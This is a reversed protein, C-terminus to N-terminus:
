RSAPATAAAARRRVIRGGWRVSAGTSDTAAADRPTIPTFAGQLPQPADRLRRAAVTASPSYSSIPREDANEQLTRPDPPARRLAKRRPAPALTGGTRRWRLALRRFPPQARVSGRGPGSTRGRRPSAWHVRARAARPGARLPPVSTRAPALRAAASRTRARRARSLWVMWLLGLVIAARRLADDTCPRRTSRHGAPQATAGPAARRLRARPRELRSADLRDVDLLTRTRGAIGRRGTRAITWRTTSASPRSRRPRSGGAGLRPRAALSRGLCACRFSARALLRRDSQSLRRRLRDGRAGSHRGRADAGRLVLQLARLLRGEPRVPVRRGCPPGAATNGAHLRFRPPDVGARADVIAADDRGADRRWQRALAVRARISAKRCDCHAARAAGAVADTEYRAPPASQM